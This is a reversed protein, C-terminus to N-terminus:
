AAKGRQRAQKRHWYARQRARRLEIASPKTEYKRQYERCKARRTPKLARLWDRYRQRENRADNAREFCFALQFWDVDEGSYERFMEAIGVV